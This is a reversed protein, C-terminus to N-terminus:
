SNNIENKYIDINGTKQKQWLFNPCGILIMRYLAMYTENPAGNIYGQAVYTRLSFGCAPFM